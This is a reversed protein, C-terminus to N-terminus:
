KNATAVVHHYIKLSHRGNPPLQCADISISGFSRTVCGVTCSNGCCRLDVADRPLSINHGFSVLHVQCGLLAARQAHLLFVMGDLVGGGGGVQFSSSSSFRARGCHCCCCCCCCAPLCAPLDNSSSGCMSIDTWPQPTLSGDLSRFSEIKSAAKLPKGAGVSRMWSGGDSSSKVLCLFGVDGFGETM